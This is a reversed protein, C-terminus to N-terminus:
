ALLQVLMAALGVLSAGWVLSRMVPIGFAYLPLYVIRAVLWLVAGYAAWGGTQNTVPGGVNTILNSQIVELAALQEGVGMLGDNGAQTWKLGCQNGDFGANCTGAAAMASAKLRPTVWTDTFPAVKLTAAMWRSLYGKFSQQDVDCKGNSECAVETMVNPPQDVFFVSSATM